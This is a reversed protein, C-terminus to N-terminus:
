RRFIARWVPDAESVFKGRPGFLVASNYLCAEGLEPLGLLIYLNERVARGMIEKTSPGPIPEALSFFDIGCSYGTLALELFVILNVRDKAARDVYSHIKLLNKAKDKWATEVQILWIKM